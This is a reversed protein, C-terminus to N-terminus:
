RARGSRSADAVQGRPALPEVGRRVDALEPDALDVAHDVRDFRLERGPARRRRAPGHEQAGLRRDPPDHQAGPDGDLRQGGLEVPEARAPGDEDALRAGPRGDALPQRGLQALAAALDDPDEQRLALVGLAQRDDLGGRALQRREPDVAGLHEDRDTATRETIRGPEERRDVEAADGNMPTGVVSTAWISEDIPPLVPTSRGSPLFRTPANWWGLAITM